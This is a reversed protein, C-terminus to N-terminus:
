CYGSYAEGWKMCEYMTISFSYIDSPSKYHEQKLIEPSMYIPTGIGKSFTMNTMLMNTNRSSGFDTLKSNIFENTYHEIDFILINDPKIDRHLIGNNHLYSIGKSSDILIKIRIQENIIEHKHILDNLSGYTAFETVICIKNPIFVAGYFYIIYSCKFKNLMTVEKNFEEILETTEIAHKMKKIAVINGRFIGKYVIGFSGEGIKKNEILEDPDLRTTLETKTHIDIEYQKEEGKKIDLTTLIIKDNITCTCLPKIFIEIEIAKGKPITFVEPNTRIEYKDCGTKTSFQIKLNRKSKNGICILQRNEKNVAIETKIEDEEFYIHQKNTIILGDGLPKFKINSYKMDFITYEKRQKQVKRYNLISNIIKIIIIIIIIIITLIILIILLIVWWVAHKDCEYGNQNVEYWFSCKSCTSNEEKTCHKINKYYICKGEKNLVYDNYCLNCQDQNNCKSCKNLNNSCKYCYKNNLFFGEECKNCGQQTKITCHTLENYSICTLNDNKFYNQNCIVCQYNNYCKNCKNICLDCITNNRYYGDKCIACSEENFPLTYKCRSKIQENLEKCTVNDLLYYGEYCRLCIQENYCNKCHEIKNSCKLCQNNIENYYFGSTCRICKNNTFTDCYKFEDKNICNNNSLIYGNECELCKGNNNSYYCKNIQQCKDKNLFYGNNCLICKNHETKNCNNIIECTGSNTISGSKCENCGNNSCENCEGYISCTSCKNHENYYTQNFSCIESNISSTTILENFTCEGNNYSSSNCIKCTDVGCIMCHNSCKNCSSGNSYFGNSCKMLKEQKYKDDKECKIGHYGDKCLICTTSENCRICNNLCLSCHTNSNIPYYGDECLECIRKDYSSIIKCNSIKYEECFNITNSGICYLCHYHQTM